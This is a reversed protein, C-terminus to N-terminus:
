GPCGSGYENFATIASATQAAVKRINNRSALVRHNEIIVLSMNAAKGREAQHLAVFDGICTQYQLSAAAYRKSEAMAAVIQERSASFGNLSAPMPPAVCNDQAFSAGVWAPYNPTGASEDAKCIRGLPKAAAVPTRLVPPEPAGRSALATSVVVAIGAGLGAAKLM